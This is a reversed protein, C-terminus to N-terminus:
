LVLRQCRDIREIADGIMEDLIETLPKVDNVLGVTQGAYHALAEVDGTMTPAPISLSYRTIPIDGYYTIVDNEGPRHGSDPKGAAVWNDYTSNRLIRVPANKWGKDFVQTYVTDTEKATVLKAQYSKHINAEYSSLLRTGVVAGDAGLVLNAALGRGDAVGGATVVPIKGQVADIVAPILAMTAVKGLIHGGAEWGQAVIIDVGMDVARKAEDASSVTYIVQAGHAHIKEIFPSPDGWFFWIIKVGKRLCLDVRASQDWDLILNAAVPKDTLALTADIMKECRDLEWTGLPMAGLAGYNSVTSVFEPTVAVGLPAQIIPVKIGLSDCLKTKIEKM